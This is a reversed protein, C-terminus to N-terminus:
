VMARQPTMVNIVSAESTHYIDSVVFPWPKVLVYKTMIDNTNYTRLTSMFIVSQFPLLKDWDLM